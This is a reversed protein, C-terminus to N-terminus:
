YDWLSDDIKDSLAHANRKSNEYILLRHFMIPTLEPIGERRIREIMNMVSEESDIRVPILLKGSADVCGWKGNSCVLSNGEGDFLVSSYGPQHSLQQSKLDLRSYLTGSAVWVTNLTKQGFPDYLIDDWKAPVVMNGQHNILGFRMDTGVTKCVYAYGMYFPQSMDYRFPIATQGQVDLYGWEEDVMTNWLGESVTNGGEEYKCPVREKLLSDLLGYLGDKRVVYYGEQFDGVFEYDPSCKEGKHNIFYNKKPNETVLAYGCHFPNYTIEQPSPLEKTNGKVTDYLKWVLKKDTKSEGKGVVVGDSPPYTQRMIGEPLMIKGTYDIIGVTASPTHLHHGFSVYDGLVIADCDAPLLERGQPDILGLKGRQEVRYVSHTGVLDIGGYVLGRGLERGSEDILGYHNNKEVAASGDVFPSVEDYVFAIVTDGQENVYGWKGADNSQPTLVQGYVLLSSCALSICFLLRGKRSYKRKSM